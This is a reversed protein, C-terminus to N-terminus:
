RKIRDPGCVASDESMKERRDGHDLLLEDEM